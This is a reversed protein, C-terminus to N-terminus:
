KVTFFSLGNRTNEVSNILKANEEDTWQVSLEDWKKTQYEKRFTQRISNLRSMEIPNGTGTYIMFLTGSPLSDYLLRIRRNLHVLAQSYNVEDNDQEGASTDSDTGNSQKQNARNVNWQAVQEVERLRAWVFNHMDSLTVAASIIEDDNSCSVNKHAAKGICAEPNGYDAIAGILPTPQQRSLRHFISEFDQNFLGFGPGNKIKLKLLEVCTTADEASDHGLAGGKQIEKHLWKSALWKLSPKSPPGRTHNYMNATDIIHPHVFRLCNLDSNLSHGLFVVNNDITKQLYAHVDALRTTVPALKEETIGSFQTVYDTVPFGPKVLEDYLVENKLDVITVRAIESGNETKVMECDMALINPEQPRQHFDANSAVWGEPLENPESDLKITPHLPYEDEVFSEYSMLYDEPKSSKSMSRMERDRKKKQENSLLSQLFANVPSFVRYRDGPSRTPWALKFIDDFESLESPTKDKLATPLLFSHKDGKVPKFGFQSPELGPVLLVVARRIHQKNRVLVWSPAQGDALCWFLLEQLDAIKIPKQLNNETSQLRPYNEDNLPQKSKKLKKKKKKKKESEDKEDPSEKGSKSSDSSSTGTEAKRKLKRQKKELQHKELKADKLEEKKMGNQVAAM